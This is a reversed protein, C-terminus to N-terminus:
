PSSPAAELAADSARSAPPAPRSPEEWSLELAYRQRVEAGQPDSVAIEVTQTGRTSRPITWVVRGSVVDIKMGSPAEVLEFRLPVDGDPDEAAVVYEYRDTGKLEYVPQSTIQPPSNRVALATSSVAHGTDQGDSPTVEVRIRDGRRLQGAALTPGTEGAIPQDNRWWRHSYQVADGDPDEGTTVALLNDTATPEPPLLRLERIRPPRNQVTVRETERV